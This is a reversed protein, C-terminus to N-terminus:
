GRMFVLVFWEDRRGRGHGFVLKVGVEAAMREWGGRGRQQGRHKDSYGNLHVSTKPKNVIIRFSPNNRDHHISTCYKGGEIELVARRTEDRTPTRRRGALVTGEGRRNDPNTDRNNVWDSARRGEKRWSACEVRCRMANGDCSCRYGVYRAIEYSVGAALGQDTRRTLLPILYPRLAQDLHSALSVRERSTCSMCNGTDSNRGDGGKRGKSLHPLKRRGCERRSSTPPAQM